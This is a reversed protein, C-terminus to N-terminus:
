KPEARRKGDDSEARRSEAAAGIDDAAAAGDRPERAHSTAACLIAIKMILPKTAASAPTSYAACRPATRPLVAFPKSSSMMVITSSPPTLM